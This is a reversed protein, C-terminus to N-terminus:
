TLTVPMEWFAAFRDIQAQLDADHGREGEVFPARTLTIDRKRFTRKWVGTIRGDTVIMPQFVGNGGPCVREAFQPDLVADRTRYGLLYEDYGPLLTVAQTPADACAEDSYWYPTGDITERHLLTGLAAIGQRAETVSLGTWWAFDHATAPAHSRFYRRTIEILAEDPSLSRSHPTCDDLLRFTQEKDDTETIVITGMQGSSWLIHYGRPGNMSIGAQELGALLASRTMQKGGQLLSVILADCRALVDADLGLQSQRRADRALVRAALLRVMWRVDEVPVFHITGRMAWTRVIRAGAIAAEVQRATSGPLRAGIGWLAQRYDQAQMAGMWRVLAEPSEAALCTLQHRQLRMRILQDRDM